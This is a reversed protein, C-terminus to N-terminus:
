LEAQDKDSYNDLFAAADREPDAEDAPANMVPAGAAAAKEKRDMADLQRSIIASQIATCIVGRLLLLVLTLLLLIASLILFGLTAGRLVYYSELSVAFPMGLAFGATILFFLLTTAGLIVLATYYGSKVAAPVGKEIASLKLLEARDTLSGRLDDKIEELLTKFNKPM